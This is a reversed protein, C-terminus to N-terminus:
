ENGPGIDAAAPMSFSGEPVSVPPRNPDLAPVLLGQNGQQVIVTFGFNQGLDDLAQKATVGAYHAEIEQDEFGPAVEIVLQAQSAIQRVADSLRIRDADLQVLREFPSPPAPPAQVPPNQAAGNKPVPEGGLGASAPVPGGTAVPTAKAPPPEPVRPAPPRFVFTAAVALGAALAGSVAWASKPWGPGAPQPTRVFRPPVAKPRAGRLSDVMAIRRALEAAHDPYRREFEEQAAPDGSEAVKWMLEDVMKPPRM